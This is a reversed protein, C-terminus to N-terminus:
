SRTAYVVLRETTQQQSPIWDGACTILNLFTGNTNGFIDQIPAQQPAYRAIYIVHFQVRAGKADVVTISDGIHIYQLNWFVAAAGGPRDLHGDIVASGREGPHPGAAYWGTDNWRDKTPTALDGNALLGLTEIPANVGISPILLRMPTAFTAPKTKAPSTQSSPSATPSPLLHTSTASPSAQLTPKQLTQSFTMTSCSSLVSLTLTAALCSLLALLVPMQLVQKAQKNRM